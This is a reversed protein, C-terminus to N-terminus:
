ETTEYIIRIIINRIQDYSNMNGMESENIYYIVFRARRRVDTQTHTHSYLACLNTFLIEM